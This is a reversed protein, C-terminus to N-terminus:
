LTEPLVPVKLRAAAQRLLDDRSALTAGERTVLELYAADYISLTHQRALALTDHGARLGTQTDTEIPLRAIAALAATADAQSIRKRREAVLLGNVVELPWHAPVLTTAGGEILERVQQNQDAKEDALFWSLALSGDLVVKTM